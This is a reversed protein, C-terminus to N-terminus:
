QPLGGEGGQMASLSFLPSDVSASPLSPPLPALGLMLSAHEAYSLLLDEEERYWLYIQVNSPMHLRVHPNRVM